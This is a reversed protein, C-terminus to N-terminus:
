GISNTRTKVPCCHSQINLEIEKRSRLPPSPLNWIYRQLIEVRQELVQLRQQISVMEPTPTSTPQQACAGLLLLWGVAKLSRRKGTEDPRGDIADVPSDSKDNMHPDPGARVKLWTSLLRGAHRYHVSRSLRPRRYCTSHQVNPRIPRM